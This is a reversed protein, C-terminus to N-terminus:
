LVDTFSSVLLLAPSCCYLKLVTTFSYFLLLALSCSYLHLVTTFSSFLLLVKSCCFFHLDLTFIYFWLLGAFCYYLPNCISQRKSFDDRPHFVSRFIVYIHFIYSQLALTSIKSFWLRRGKYTHVNKKIFYYIYRLHYLTAYQKLYLIYM